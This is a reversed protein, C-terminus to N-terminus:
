GISYLSSLVSFLLQSCSGPSRERGSCQADIKLLIVSNILPNPFLVEISSSFRNRFIPSSNKATQHFHMSFKVSLIISNVELLYLKLQMRSFIISYKLFIIRNKNKLSVVFSPGEYILDKTNSAHPASYSFHCRFPPGSASCACCWWQVKFVRSLSM